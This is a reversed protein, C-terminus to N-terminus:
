PTSAHACTHCSTAALELEGDGGSQDKYCTKAANEDMGGDQQNQGWTCGEKGACGDEKKIDACDVGLLLALLHRGRHKCLGRAHM